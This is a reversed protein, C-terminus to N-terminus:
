SLMRWEGAVFTVVTVTAAPRAVLEEASRRRTVSLLRGRRTSLM